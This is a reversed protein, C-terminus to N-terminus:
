KAPYLIGRFVNESSFIDQALVRLQESTVGEIAAEYTSTMARDQPYFHENILVELWYGNTKIAARYSQIQATKVKELDKATPGEVQLKVIEAHLAKLLTDVSGAGCPLGVIVRFHDYPEREYNASVSGSYIGGIKERLEGIIKINLVDVLLALQLQALDSHKRAGYYQEMVLSKDEKGLYFKVEHKGNVKRLGIDVMKPAEGKVPLGGWYQALLPLVSDADVNGVLVFHYGDAWAFENRYIEICDDLNCSSLDAFTPIGIPMMPHNGYILKGLSDIFENRPEAKLDKIKTMTASIM